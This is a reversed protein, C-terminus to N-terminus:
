EKFLLLPKVSKFGTSAVVIPHKLSKVNHQIMNIIKFTGAHAALGGL